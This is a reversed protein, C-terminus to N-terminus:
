LCGAVPTGSVLVGSLKASPPMALNTERPAGRGTDPLDLPSQFWREYIEQIRSAGSPSAGPKRLELMEEYVVDSFDLGGVAMHPPNKRRTVIGYCEQAQPAPSWPAVALRADKLAPNSALEAALLVHDLVFAHAEPRPGMLMKYSEQHSAPYKVVLKRAGLAAQRSMLSQLHQVSTSGATAVITHGRSRLHNVLAVWSTAYPALEPRLLIGVDSIFYTPSFALGLSRRRETNSTSSCEIDVEGVLLQMMRTRPTVEVWRVDRAADFSRGERLRWRKILEVCLDVAYGRYDPQNADGVNFSFPFAKRQVGIRIVDERKDPGPATNNAVVVPSALALLVWVVVAGGLKLVKQAAKM